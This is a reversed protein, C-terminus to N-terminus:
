WGDKISGEGQSRKQEVFLLLTEEMIFVLLLLFVMAKKEMVRVAEM